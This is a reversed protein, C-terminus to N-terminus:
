NSLLPIILSNNSLQCSAYNPCLNKNKIIRFASKKFYKIMYLMKLFNQFSLCILNDANSKISLIFMM